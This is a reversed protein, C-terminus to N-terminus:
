RGLAFVHFESLVLGTSNLAAIIRRLTYRDLADPRGYYSVRCPPM